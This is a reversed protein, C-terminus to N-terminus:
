ILTGDLEDVGRDYMESIINDLDTTYFNILEVGTFLVYIDDQESKSRKGRISKNMVKDGLIDVRTKSATTVAAINTNLNAAVIQNNVNEVIANSEIM